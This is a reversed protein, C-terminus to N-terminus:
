QNYAASFLGSIWSGTSPTEEDYKEKEVVVPEDNMSTDFTTDFRTFETDYSKDIKKIELMTDDVWEYRKHSMQEIFLSWPTCDKLAEMGKDCFSNLLVPSYGSLMGVNEKTSLSPFGNTSRLNWYLIYPSKYPTKHSTKMGADYFIRDISASMTENFGKDALNIQMDSYVAFIMNSVEEPPLDKSSCIDAIMSMAYYFNTTGGWTNDRKLYDVADVFTKCHELNLWQPRTSFSMVRKGLASKSSSLLGLGIAAYLPNSNDCEMSGSTDVMPVINGLKDVKKSFEEWQLNIADKQTQLEPTIGYRSLAIERSINVADRVMDVVCLCTAKISTEGRACSGVYNMYNDKCTLRDDDQGRIEGTKNVYAFARRQRSLTISTVNKDFNIDKWTGECQHVQVTQLKRNLEASVKRYHTLCKRKASSMQKNTVASKIWDDYYEYAIHKAIWGFKKSSERPVWRGILSPASTTINSIDKRLQKVTIFLIYKFIDLTEYKQPYIDRLKNMFYKMDKWSGYPHENTDLHVLSKVAMRSLVLAKSSMNGDDIYKFDEAVLVWSLLLEYFLAYEGKGNVIDRTHLMMKYLINWTDTYTEPDTKYSDLIMDLYKGGLIKMNTSDKTRTLQFFLQLIKEKSDNSWTYELNGNEGYQCPTHSDLASVVSAM